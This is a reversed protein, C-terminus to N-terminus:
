YLKVVSNFCISTGMLQFLASESTTIQCGAARLRAVAVPVEDHNCSSIGDLLIHVGFDLELLDLATQLVCVHSEIGFIVVSKTGFAELQSLVEPLVMSFKTKAIPGTYLTSPLSELTLPVTVGLARPNQETVIVPIELIKAARM